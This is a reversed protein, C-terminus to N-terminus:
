LPHPLLRITQGFLSPPHLSCRYFEFACQDDKTGQVSRIRGGGGSASSSSSNGGPKHPLPIPTTSSPQNMVMHRISIAPRVLRVEAFICRLVTYRGGCASRTTCYAAHAHARRMRVARRVGFPLGRAPRESSVEDNPLHRPMNTTVCARVGSVSMELSGGTSHWRDWVLKVVEGRQQQEAVSPGSTCRPCPM